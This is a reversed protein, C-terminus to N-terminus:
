KCNNKSRKERECLRLLIWLIGLRSSLTTRNTHAQHEQEWEEYNEAGRRVASRTHTHTHSHSFLLSRPRKCLHVWAKCHCEGSHVFVCACSWEFSIFWVWHWALERVAGKEGVMEDWEGDDLRFSQSCWLGFQPLKKLYAAMSLLNDSYHQFIPFPLEGGVSRIYYTVWGCACMAWMGKNELKKRVKKSKWGSGAHADQGTSLHCNSKSM